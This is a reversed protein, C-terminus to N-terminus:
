AVDGLNGKIEAAGEVVQRVGQGVLGVGLVQEPLAAEVRAGKDFQEVLGLFPGLPRRHSGGYRDAIARVPRGIEELHHTIEEFVFGSAPNGGPSTIQNNLKAKCKM